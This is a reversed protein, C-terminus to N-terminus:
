FIFVATKHCAGQNISMAMQIRLSEMLFDIQHDLSRLFVAQFPHDRDPSSQLCTLGGNQKRITIRTDGSRGANMGVINLFGFRGVPSMDFLQNSMRMNYGDAFGTQVLVPVFGWQVNLLIIKYPMDM